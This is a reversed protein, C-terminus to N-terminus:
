IYVLFGTVISVSEIIRGHHQHGGYVTDDELLGEPPEPPRVLGGNPIPRIKNYLFNRSIHVM